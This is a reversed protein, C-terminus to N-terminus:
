MNTISLHLSSSIRFLLIGQEIYIFHEAKLILQEYARHISDEVTSVGASWKYVSKPVLFPIEDKDNFKEEKCMNWRQIFHRALDRAAAGYVVCSVDHWPTRPVSKRDWQDIYPLEYGTVYGKYWNTYDKGVWLEGSARDLCMDKLADIDEIIQEYEKHWNRPDHNSSKVRWEAFA